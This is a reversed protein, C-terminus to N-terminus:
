ISWKFSLRAIQSLGVGIGGFIITFIDKVPEPNTTYYLVSYQAADDILSLPLALPLALTLNMGFRDNFKFDFGTSLGAMALITFCDKDIYMQANGQLGLRLDFVKGDIVKWYGNVMIGPLLVMAVGEGFDIEQGEGIAEVLAATGYVVPLGLSADFGFHSGEGDIEISTNMFNQEVGLRFDMAFVSAGALLAILVFIIVKKM